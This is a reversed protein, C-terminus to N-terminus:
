PFIVRYYQYGILMLLDENNHEMITDPHHVLLRPTLARRETHMRQYLPATDKRRAQVTDKGALVEVMDRIGETPAIAWEWRRTGETAIEVWSASCAKVLDEAEAQV